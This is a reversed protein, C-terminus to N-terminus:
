ASTSATTSPKLDGRESAYGWNQTFLTVYISLCTDVPNRRCRIIRANPFLVHVLGVWLFNFPMKDTVRLSDPGISRLLRLYDARLGEAAGALKGGEADAWVSGRENWFPLEGGGGVRPHSSVIREILTTGSRPMGLVLVPTEDRGGM